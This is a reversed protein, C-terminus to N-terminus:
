RYIRGNKKNNQRFTRKSVHSLLLYSYYLDIEERLVRNEYGLTDLFSRISFGIDSNKDQAELESERNAYFEELQKIIGLINEHL